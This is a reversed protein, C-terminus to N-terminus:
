PRDNMYQRATVYSDDSVKLDGGFPEGFVLVLYLNISIILTILGTMFLQTKFLSTTFFYTFIITIVAGTLLVAWEISPIGYEAQDTRERRNEWISISEQLIIPFIGKQNETTPELNKVSHMLDFIIQRAKISKQGKGMLQFENNIIEDIYEKSLRKINDKHKGAFQDSLSYVAIISKAEDKVTQTAHQFKSMADFVVLGLVVAYLAGVVTIYFGGVEHLLKLREEGILRRTLIQGAIAVAITLLIAVFGVSFKDLSLSELM